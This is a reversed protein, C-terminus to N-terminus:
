SGEKVRKLGYRAWKKGTKERKKRTKVTEVLRNWRAGLRFGPGLFLRCAGAPPRRNLGEAGIHRILQTNVALTEAQSREPEAAGATPRSGDICPGYVNYLDIHGITTSMEGLAANCAESQRAAKWDCEARITNKLSRPMFAHETLFETRFQQGQGGCVGIETGSCGNGVAIGALPAGSYTEAQMAHLIAEALTPVYVGADATDHLM